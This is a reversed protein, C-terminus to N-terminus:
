IHILSLTTLHRKSDEPLAENLHDIFEELSKDNFRTLEWGPKVGQKEASSGERVNSVIVRDKILRVEVGIDSDRDNTQDPQDEEWGEYLKAPMINFHSKGLSGLMGALLSRLEEKSTDRSLRSRVDDRQKTWGDLDFDEEWATDRVTEFVRDRICM